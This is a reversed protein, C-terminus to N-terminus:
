YYQCFLNTHRLLFIFGCWILHTNQRLDAIIKKATYKSNLNENKCVINLINKKSLFTFFFMIRNKSWKQRLGFESGKISPGDMLYTMLSVKKNTMQFWHFNTFNYNHTSFSWLTKNFQFSFCFFLKKLSVNLPRDM